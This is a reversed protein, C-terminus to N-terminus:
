IIISVELNSKKIMNKLFVIHTITASILFSLSFLNPHVYSPQLNQLKDTLISLPLSIHLLFCILSFGIILYESM